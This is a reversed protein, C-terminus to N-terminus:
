RRGGLNNIVRHRNAAQRHSAAEREAVTPDNIYVGTKGDGGAEEDQCTSCVWAEPDDVDEEYPLMERECESCTTAVRTM